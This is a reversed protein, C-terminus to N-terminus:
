YTGPTMPPSDRWMDPTGPLQIESPTVTGPCNDLSWSTILPTTMTTNMPSNTISSSSLTPTSPFFYLDGGAPGDMGLMTPSSPTLLGTHKHLSEPSMNPAVIMPPKLHSSTPRSYVLASPYPMNSSQDCSSALHQHSSRGNPHPLFHGHQKTQSTTDPTYYLFSSTSEM